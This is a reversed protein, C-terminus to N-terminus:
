SNYMHCLYCFFSILSHFDFMRNFLRERSYQQCTNKKKKHSPAGLSLSQAQGQMTEPDVKRNNLPLHQHTKDGPRLVSGPVKSARMIFYNIAVYAGHTTIELIIEEM